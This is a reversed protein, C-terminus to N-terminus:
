FRWGGGGGKWLKSGGGHLLSTVFSKGTCIIAALGFPCCCFISIISLILTGTSSPRQEPQATVVVTQTPPPGQQPAYTQEYGPAPKMDSYQPPASM